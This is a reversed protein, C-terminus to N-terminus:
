ITEGDWNSAEDIKVIHGCGKCEMYSKSTVLDRQETLALRLCAPCTFDKNNKLLPKDHIPISKVKM